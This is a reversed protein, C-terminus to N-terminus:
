CLGAGFYQVACREFFFDGETVPGTILSCYPDGSLPDCATNVQVDTPDYTLDFQWGVIDIGASIAIPLAFITATIPIEAGISITSAAARTVHLGLVMAALALRPVLRRLTRIEEGEASRGPPSSNNRLSHFGTFMVQPYSKSSSFIESHNLPHLRRPLCFQSHSIVIAICSAPPVDLRPAQTKPQSTLRHTSLNNSCVNSPALLRNCAPVRSGCNM